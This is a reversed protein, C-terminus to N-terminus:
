RIEFQLDLDLGYDREGLQEGILSLSKTIRYKVQVEQEESALVPTSYTLYFKDSLKKDVQIRTTREGRSSVASPKITFRDFGTVREVETELKGKLESTLLLTAETASLEARSAFAQEGVAGFILLSAIDAESLVPSSVLDLKFKEPVGNALLEVTYDTVVGERDFGTVETRGSFNFSPEIQKPNLFGVSGATVEFVHERYEIIGETMELRGTLIPAAATGRLHLNGSAEGRVLKIDVQLPSATVMEVDLNLWKGKTSESDENRGLDIATDREGLLAILNDIDVNRTYIGQDMNITGRLFGRGESFKLGLDARNVTDLGEPFDIPVAEGKWVLSGQVPKFGSMFLEGSMSLTGSEPKGTIEVIHLRNGVIELKGKLNNVPLDFPLHAVCETDSLEITGNLVPESLSGTVQLETLAQGSFTDVTPELFTLGELDISGDVSGDLAADPAIRLTGDIVSGGSRLPMKVFQIGTEPYYEFPVLEQSNFRIGNITFDADNIVGDVHTRNTNALIGSVDARVSIDGSVIDGPIRLGLFDNLGTRNITAPTSITGTFPFEGRLDVAVFASLEGDLLEGTGELEPGDILFSARGSRWPRGDYTIQDWTLDTTARLDEGNLKGSVEGSLYTEGGLPVKLIELYKIGDLPIPDLSRGSVRYMGGELAGSAELRRGDKVLTIRTASVTDGSFNGALSIEDFPELLIRGSQMKLTGEGELGSRKSSLYISGDLKGKVQLDLGAASLLDEIRGDFISVSAWPRQDGGNFPILGRGALVSSGTKITLMPIDLGSKDMDIHAQVLDGSFRNWIPAQVELDFSTKVNEWNGEATGNLVLSGGLEQLGQVDHWNALDEDVLSMDLLPGDAALKGRLVLETSDVTAALLLDKLSNDDYQGSLEFNMNRLVDGLPIVLGGQMTVNSAGGSLRGDIMLDASVHGKTPETIAGVEELIKHLPYEETRIRMNFPLTRKFRVDAESFLNEDRYEIKGDTLSSGNTDIYIDAAVRNMGRGALRVDKGNLQGRFSPSSLDGGINGYLNIVGDSGPILWPLKGINVGVSLDGNLAAKGEFPLVGTFEFNIPGTAIDLKSVRLELPTVAFVASLSDISVTRGEPFVRWTIEGNKANLNVTRRDPPDFRNRALIIVVDSIKVQAGAQIDSYSLDVNLFAVNEIEFGLRASERRTRPQTQWFPFLPDVAITGDERRVIDLFMGELKLDKIVVKGRFFAYPDVTVVLRSVSISNGSGKLDRLTVDTLTLRTLFINRELKGLQVHVGLHKEAQEIISNKLWRDVAPHAAIKM